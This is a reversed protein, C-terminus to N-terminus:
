HKQSKAQTDNNRMVMHAGPENTEELYDGEAIDHIDTKIWM